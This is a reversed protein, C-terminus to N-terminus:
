AKKTKGFGHKELIEECAVQLDKVLPTKKIAQTPPKAEVKVEEKMSQENKSIVTVSKDAKPCMGKECLTTAWPELDDVYRVMPGSDVTDANLMEYHSQLPLGSISYSALEGKMIQERYKQTTKFTDDRIRSVLYTGKENVHSYFTEGQKNTYKLIPTGIKFDGHKVTISRYEPPLQFWRKLFSVQAQTTIVDNEPDRMEWTAWGGVVLDNDEKNIIDFGSPNEKYLVGKEARAQITGCIKKASDEDHGTNM